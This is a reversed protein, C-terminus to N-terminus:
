TLLAQPIAPVCWCHGDIVDSCFRIPTGIVRMVEFAEALGTVPRLCRNFPEFSM